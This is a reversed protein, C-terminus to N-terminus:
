QKEGGEVPRRERRRSTASKKTETAAPTKAIGPTLYLVDKGTPGRLTVSAEDVRVLRAEGVQGGLVVFEGNIIAAPKSGERRLITQLGSAPASASAAADGAAPQEVAAPPRTPDAFGQACAGGAALLLAM